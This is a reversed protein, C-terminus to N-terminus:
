TPLYEFRTNQWEGAANCAHTGRPAPPRLWNLDDIALPTEIFYSTLIKGIKSRVCPSTSTRALHIACRGDHRVRTRGSCRCAAVVETM